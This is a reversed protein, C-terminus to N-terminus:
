TRVIGLAGDAYEWLDSSDRREARVESVGRPFQWVHRSPGAIETPESRDRINIPRYEIQVRDM